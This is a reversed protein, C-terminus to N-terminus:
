LKIVSRLDKDNIKYMRYVQVDGNPIDFTITQGANRLVANLASELYERLKGIAHVDNYANTIYIIPDEDLSIFLYIFKTM